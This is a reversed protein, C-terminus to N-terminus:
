NHTPPSLDVGPFHEEFDETHTIAISRSNEQIKIKISGNSVFFVHIKQMSQLKKCKAWLVRYYPCLSENVFIKGTGSLDFDEMSLNRLEKKVKLIQQCDKRNSFKM